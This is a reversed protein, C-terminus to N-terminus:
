SSLFTVALQKQFRFSTCLKTADAIVGTMIAIVMMEVEKTDTATMMTDEERIMTTAEPTTDQDTTTTHGVVDEEVITKIGQGVEDGEEIVKGIEVGGRKMMVLDRQNKRIPKRKADEEVNSWLRNGCPSM